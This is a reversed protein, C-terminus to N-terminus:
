YPRGNMNRPSDAPLGLRISRPRRIKIGLIRWDAASVYIEGSRLARSRTYSYDGESESEFGDPNKLVRRVMRKVVTKLRAERVPDVAIWADLDGLRVSLITEAEDIYEDVTPEDTSPIPPKAGLAVDDFKTVTM